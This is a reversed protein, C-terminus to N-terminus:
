NAEDYERSREISREGGADGEEEFILTELMHTYIVGRHKAKPPNYIYIYTHITHNKKSTPTLISLRKLPPPPNFLQLTEIPTSPSSTDTNPTQSDALVSPSRHKYQDNTVEKQM